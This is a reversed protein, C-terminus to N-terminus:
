TTKPKATAKKEAKADVAPSPQEAAKQAAEPSLAAGTSDQPVSGAPLTVDAEGSQAKELAERAAQPDAVADAPAKVYPSEEGIGVRGPTHVGAPPVLVEGADHGAEVATGGSLLSQAEDDPLDVETGPPPWAEGNRTGSIQSTLRVRM